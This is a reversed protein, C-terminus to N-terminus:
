QDLKQESSVLIVQRDKKELLSDLRQRLMMLREFLFIAGPPSIPHNGQDTWEVPILQQSGNPLTVLIQTSDPKGGFLPVM